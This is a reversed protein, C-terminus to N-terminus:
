LSLECKVVVTERAKCDYSPLIRHERSLFRSVEWMNIKQENKSFTSIDTFLIFSQKHFSFDGFTWTVSSLKDVPNPAFFFKFNKFTKLLKLVTQINFSVLYAQKYTLDQNTFCSSSTNFAMNYSAIKRAVQLAVIVFLFGKL